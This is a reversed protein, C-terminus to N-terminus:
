SNVIIITRWYYRKHASNLKRSYFAVHKEEQKIVAGLQTDSADTYIHFLKSFDPFTLM